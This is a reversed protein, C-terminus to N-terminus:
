LKETHQKGNILNPQFAALTNLRRVLQSKDLLQNSISRQRGLRGDIAPFFNRCPM